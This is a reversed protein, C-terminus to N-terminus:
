KERSLAKIAGLAGCETTSPITDIPLSTSGVLKKQSIRTNIPFHEINLGNQDDVPYKEETDTRGCENSGV